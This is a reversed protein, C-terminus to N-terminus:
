LNSTQPKPKSTQSKLRAIEKETLYRWEGDQLSKLELGDIKTRILKEVRYGFKWCMRRIQRNKGEFLTFEYWCKEKMPKVRVPLLQEERLSMGLEMEQRHEESLRKNLKVHYVKQVKTKPNTFLDGLRNDNTILLLGSSEKDLRGVPFVWKGFDGLIDYITKNGREDSRTTVVHPPKNM